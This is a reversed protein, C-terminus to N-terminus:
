FYSYTRPIGIGLAVNLNPTRTGNQIQQCNHCWLREQSQQEKIRSREIDDALYM